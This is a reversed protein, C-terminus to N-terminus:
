RINYVIILVNRFNCSQLYISTKETIRNCFIKYELFLLLTFHSFLKREKQVIKEM